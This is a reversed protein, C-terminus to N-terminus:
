QKSFMYLDYIKTFSSMKGSLNWTVVQIMPLMSVLNSTSTARVPQGHGNVIFKNAGDIFVSDQRQRRQPNHQSSVVQRISRCSSSTTNKTAM